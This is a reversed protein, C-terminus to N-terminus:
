LLPVTSYYLLNLYYVCKLYFNQKFFSTWYLSPNIKKERQCCQFRTFRPDTSLALWQSDLAKKKGALNPHKTWTHCDNQFLAHSKVRYVWFPHFIKFFLPVNYKKLNFFVRRSVYLNSLFSISSGNHSFLYAPRLVLVELLKLPVLNEGWSTIQSWELVPAAIMCSSELSVIRCSAKRTDGRTQYWFQECLLLFRISDGDGFM